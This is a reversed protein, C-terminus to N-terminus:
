GSHIYLLTNIECIVMHSRHSPVSIHSGKILLLSNM